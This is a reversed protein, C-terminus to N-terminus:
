ETQEQPQQSSPDATAGSSSVKKPSTSKGPKEQGPANKLSGGLYGSVRKYDALQETCKLSPTPKVSEIRRMFMENEKQIREQERKRNLGNHSIHSLPTTGGSASAKGPASSKAQTIELICLPGGSCQGGSCEGGDSCCAPAPGGDTMASGSDPDAPGDTGVEASGVAAPTPAQPNGEKARPPKRAGPNAATADM